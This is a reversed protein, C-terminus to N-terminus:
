ASGPREYDRSYGVLWAPRMVLIMTVITGNIFGESFGLMLLFAPMSPIADPWVGGPESVGGILGFALGYCAMLALASGFFACGFLFVFPDRPFRRWILRRLAETVLVPVVGAVLWSVPIAALTGAMAAIVTEAVLTALAARAPGLLLTVTTVGLIHLGPGDGVQARMTWLVILAVISGALLNLGVRDERLRGLGSAALAFAAVPLAIAAALWILAAPVLDVSLQM